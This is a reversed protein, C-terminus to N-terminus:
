RILNVHGIFKKIEQNQLVELEIVYTYTGIECDIGSQGYTGDWGVNPDYSEFINEGWRNYINLRYTGLKYGATIIPLFDHNREDDNPTFSNPVYLIFGVHIYIAATDSCGVENFATLVVLYDISEGPFSHNTNEAFSYTGDGFNWEYSTANQSFNYFNVLPEVVSQNIPDANFIATPSEFVCAINLYTETNSCGQNNTVTLSVDYCGAEDFQYGISGIQEVTEGNGFDWLYNWNPNASSAVYSVDLFDCASSDSYTFNADPSPSIIIPKIISDSCGTIDNEANLQVDFSGVSPFQHTPDTLYSNASGDGFDWNFDYIGNSLNQFSIPNLDCYPPNLAIFDVIPLPNVTVSIITEPGECGLPYYTPISTPIVRYQVTEQVSGLLTLNDLINISIQIPSSTENLVAMNPDAYWEFLSPSDSQLTINTNEGSCIFIDNNLVNPMPRIKVIITANEGYCSTSNTTFTPTVVIESEVANSNNNIGFFSPITGTGNPALSISSNSNTWNNVWTYSSGIIPGSLFINDSLINSGPCLIISDPLPDLSPIPNVTIQVLEEMGDCTKSINSPQIIDTYSPLLHVILTEISSSNNISTFGPIENPSLLTTNSIYPLGIDDGTHFWNITGININVPISNITEDHCLVIDAIPTITPEPLVFVHITDSQGPCLPDISTNIFNVVYKIEQTYSEPNVLIDIIRSTDQPAYSPTQLTSTTSICNWIPALSLTNSQLNLDVSEGSCIIVTDENLMQITSPIIQVTMLFPVGICGAASLPTVLYTVIGNGTGTAVYINNVNGAPRLTPNNLQIPPSSIGLTGSVVNAGTLTISNIYYWATPVSTSISNPFAQDIPLNSCWDNLNSNTHVPEPLITVVINFINGLCGNDGTPIVKYTVIKSSNTNNLFVDDQLANFDTTSGLQFNGAAPTLGAQMITDFINWSGVSPITNTPFTFNIPLDSCISLFLTDSYPLAEITVSTTTTVEVCGGSAAITYTVTYTGATSTSPTIAGTNTNIILGSPSASYTGGSTGTQTVDQGTTLTKCFPSGAYSIIPQIPPATIIVTTTVPVPACGSSAPITYTVTYTGATSTSPTIAGTSADISLGATSSYTGGTYAGTGNLTVSQVTTLTQCFPGAYVITATPAATITVSTTTSVAVCGGSAAITYTVTYIGATSLSPTIAGTSANISLGSPSASYSGGSTGTQTVDQGTTLTKCFPSGPYSIIPQIPPATITLTTTIPVAACGSSAAITYTVTYTGATSTSPTIAGTSADISL